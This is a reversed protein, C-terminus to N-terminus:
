TVKRKHPKVKYHTFNCKKQYMAQRFIWIDLCEHIMQLVEVTPVDSINDVAIVLDIDRKMLGKEESKISEENIDYFLDGVNIKSQM